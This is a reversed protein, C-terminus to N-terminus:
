VPEIKAKYTAGDWLKKVDTVRYEIGKVTITEREGDRVSEYLGAFDPEAYEVWAGVPHFMWADRTEGELGLLESPINLLVMGTVTDGGGYPSWSCSDGYLSNVQEQTQRRMSDFLAM